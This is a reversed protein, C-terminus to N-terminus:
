SRILESSISRTRGMVMSFRRHKGQNTSEDEERKRTSRVQNKLTTGQITTEVLTKIINTNTFTPPNTAPQHPTNARRTLTSMTSSITTQDSSTPNNTPTPNSTSRTPTVISTITSSRRRSNSSVARSHSMGMNVGMRRM